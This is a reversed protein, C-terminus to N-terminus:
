RRVEGDTTGPGGPREPPGEQTGGLEDEPEDADDAASGVPVFPTRPGDVHWAPGDDPDSLPSGGGSYAARPPVQISLPQTDGVDFLGARGSAGPAGERGGEASPPRFSPPLRVAGSPDSSVPSVGDRGVSVGERLDAAGGGGGPAAGGAGGTSASSGAAAPGGPGGPLGPVGRAQGPAFITACLRRYTEDPRVVWGIRRMAQDQGASELVFEGYGLLQGVPSRSYSMDTVKHLPMMAVRHTVLGTLLLMRRDTAVFWEIRWELLRWVFRGVPLLGLWLVLVGPDGIVTEARDALFAAVAVGLVATLAPEALRAWHRRVALVVREDALVYRRFGAHRAVVDAAGPAPGVPPEAPM